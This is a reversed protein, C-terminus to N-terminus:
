TFIQEQMCVFDYLEFYMSKYTSVWNVFVWEDTVDSQVTKLWVM